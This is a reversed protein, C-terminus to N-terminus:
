EGTWRHFASWANSIFSLIVFIYAILTWRAMVHPANDVYRKSIFYGLYICLAIVTSLVKPDLLLMWRKEAMISLAALMVSVGMMPTGILSSKNMYFYLMELSPMRRMTDGWRKSKLRFHLFLYIAAFVAAVTLAAFGFNALVIHMVLLGHVTQWNLLPNIEPALWFDSLVLASFGVINLLFVVYESKNFRTMILSMIVISFTFWFVFDYMSYIPLHGQDATRLILYILQMLSVVVLLGTGMRKASANRRICDSFYFLLSLAYTYILITHITDVISM